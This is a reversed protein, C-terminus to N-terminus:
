GKQIGTVTGNDIEPFWGGERWGGGQKRVRRRRIKRELNETVM